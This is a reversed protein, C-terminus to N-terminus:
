FRLNLILYSVGFVFFGLWVAGVWWPAPNADYVHYKDDELLQDPRSAEAASAGLPALIPTTGAIVAHKTESM